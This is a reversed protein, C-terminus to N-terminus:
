SSPCTDAHLYRKCEATTLGRTVRDRAIEVLEDLDLTWIRTVGDFWTSALRGQSTFDVSGPAVLSGLQLTVQLRGTRPDWVRVTGDASSTAVRAGTADFALDGVLGTHGELTARREGTEADWVDVPGQFLRTSALQDGSPAFWVGIANAEIRGVLRNARWDWLRIDRSAPDDRPGEGTTAILQGDSRFSLGPIVIRPEGSIRGLEAGTRDFVRVHSEPGGPRDQTVSVALREGSGDWDLSFVGAWEPGGRVEFAVTGTRTDWVPFPLEWNPAALLRGDPSLMLCPFFDQRGNPAPGLRQQRRGTAIDHRVIWGDDQATWVSRGDPTPAAGCDFNSVTDPISRVEPAAEETVDWVKVSTIAWDSTMLQRGDPSFAVSRVGARMDQASLRVIETAASRNVTYVRATGDDSATALRYSPGDGGEAPKVDPGWAVGPVNGTNGPTVLLLRGTRADVVAAGPETTAVAILRGDPSWAIDSNESDTFFHLVERHSRVDYVHVESESTAVALRRGDPSFETDQPGDMRLVWPDGGATPFVRVRSNEVWSGAVLRGDPSASVGFVPGEGGVTLDGVKRGTAVDWVRIAGEDSGVIVRKSDRSFVVDNIDIADGRFSQVTEGTVADRVDVIGSEEPGETVFLRGDPSWDMTGGVGPFSRLIRASVVGRHLAELAEPLVPEDYRRTADVAALALLISREPDDRLNADAAAALERAVAIHRERVAQERQDLAVLGGVLAVVLAVAIGAV